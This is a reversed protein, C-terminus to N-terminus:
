KLLMWEAMESALAEDQEVALAALYLADDDVVQERPLAQELLKEIFKSRQHAPVARRLREALEDAVRM